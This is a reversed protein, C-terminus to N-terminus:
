HFKYKKKIKFEDDKKKEPTEESSSYSKKRKRPKPYNIKKKDYKNNKDVLLKSLSNNRIKLRERLPLINNISERESNEIFDIINNDIYNKINNVIIENEKIEDNKNENKIINNSIHDDKETRDNDDNLKINDINNEVENILNEKSNIDDLESINNSNVSDTISYDLSNNEGMENDEIKLINSDIEIYKILEDMNDRESNVLKEKLYAELYSKFVSNDLWKFINNIEEKEILYM